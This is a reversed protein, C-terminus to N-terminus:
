ETIDKCPKPLLNIIAEYFSNLLTGEEEYKQLRKSLIPTLEERFTHYLKDM